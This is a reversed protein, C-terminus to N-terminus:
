RPEADRRTGSKSVLTYPGRHTACNFEPRVHEGHHGVALRYEGDLQM